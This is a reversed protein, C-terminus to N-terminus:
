KLAAAHRGYSQPIQADPEILQPSDDSRISTPAGIRSTSGIRADPTLSHSTGLGSRCFLRFLIM